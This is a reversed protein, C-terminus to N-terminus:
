RYTLLPRAREVAEPHFREAERRPSCDSRFPARVTPARLPGFRKSRVGPFPRPHWRSSPSKPEEIRSADALPSAAPSPRTDSIESCHESAVNTAFRFRSSTVRRPPHSGPGSFRQSLWPSGPGVWRRLLGSDLESSGTRSRASPEFLAPRGSPRDSTLDRGGYRSM